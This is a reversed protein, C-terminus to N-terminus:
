WIITDNFGRPSQLKHASSFTLKQSQTKEFQAVKELAQKYEEETVMTPTEQKNNKYNTFFSYKSKEHLLGMFIVLFAATMIMSIWLDRTAMFFISLVILPKFWASQLIREQMQGLDSIIHRSGLNVLLMTVGWVIKSTNLQQIITDM